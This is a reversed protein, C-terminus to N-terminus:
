SGSCRVARMRVCHALSLGYARRAGSVSHMLLPWALIGGASEISQGNNKCSIFTCLFFLTIKASRFPMERELIMKLPFALQALVMFAFAIILHKKRM